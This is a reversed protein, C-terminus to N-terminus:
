KTAKKSYECTLGEDKLFECTSDTHKNAGKCESSKPDNIVKTRTRYCDLNDARYKCYCSSVTVTISCSAKKGESNKVYYNVTATDGNKNLSVQQTKANTGSYSSSFGYYATANKPTATVLGTKSVSLTCSLEDQTSGEITVNFKASTATNGVNDEVTLTQSKSTKSYDKCVKEEKCGSENDSCIACVTVPNKSKIDAQNSSLTVQPAINDIKVTINKKNEVNDINTAVVTVNSIGSNSIVIKKESVDVYDCKNDCNITYKLSKLNTEDPINVNITVNDKSWNDGTVNELALDFEVPAKKKFVFFLVVILAILVVALAIIIIIPKKKKNKENSDKVEEEGTNYFDSYDNEEEISKEYDENTHM